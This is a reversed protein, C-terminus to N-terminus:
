LNVTKHRTVPEGMTAHVYPKFQVYRKRAFQLAGTRTGAWRREIVANDIMTVAHHEIAEGDNTVTTEPYFKWTKM